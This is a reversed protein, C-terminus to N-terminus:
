PRGTRQNLEGMIKPGAYGGISAITNIFGTSAAAAAGGLTLTPLAWFPAYFSSLCAIIVSFMAVTLGLNTMGSRLLVALAGLALFLPLPPHWPPHGTRDSNWGTLIMAAMGVCYPIASLLSIKLNCDSADASCHLGDFAVRKIMTPMWFFLAYGGT